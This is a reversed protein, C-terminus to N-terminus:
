GGGAAAGPRALRVPRRAAAPTSEPSVASDPVSLWQRWNTAVGSLVNGAPLRLAAETVADAVVRQRTYDHAAGAFLPRRYDVLQDPAGTLFGWVAFALEMDHIVPGRHFISARRCGCAFCGAVVDELHEGDALVAREAVRNALKLGFGLDTGAAGFRPGEPPRLSLLEAPRDQAWHGPVSLRSSPRMRDSSVLPVYDPQAM